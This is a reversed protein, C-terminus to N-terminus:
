LRLDEPCNLNRYLAEEPASLSYELLLGHEKLGRAFSQLSVDNSSLAKQAVPAAQKPYIAALPEFHDQNFSIVGRGPTTMQLLKRLHETTLDPLDVALALLHSTTMAALAASIGSLPGRSPPNDLLVQSNPPTWSPQQRASIFIVQPYLTRLLALQRAWLLQGAVLLTAKDQGMRKSLGGALLVGTLSPEEGSPALSAGQKPILKPACVPWPRIALWKGGKNM